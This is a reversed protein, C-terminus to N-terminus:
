WNIHITERDTDISTKDGLVLAFLKVATIAGARYSETTEYSLSQFALPIRFILSEGKREVTIDKEKFYDAIDGKFDLTKLGCNWWWVKIRIRETTATDNM